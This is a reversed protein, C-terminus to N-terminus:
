LLATTNIKKSRLAPQVFYLKKVAEIDVVPLHHVSFRYMIFNDIAPYMVSEPTQSDNLGFFHGLEHAATTVLNIGVRRRRTNGDDIKWIYDTNFHITSNHITQTDEDVDTCNNITFAVDSTWVDTRKLERFSTFIIQLELDEQYIGVSTHNFWMEAITNEWLQFASRLGRHVDAVSLGRVRDDGSVQYAIYNKRYKCQEGNEVCFITVTCAFVFVAFTIFKM